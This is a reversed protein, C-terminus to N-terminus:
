MMGGIALFVGYQNLRYKGEMMVENLSANRLLSSPMMIM